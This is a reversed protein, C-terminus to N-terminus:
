TPRSSGRTTVGTTRSSGATSRCGFWVFQTSRPPHRSPSRGPAAPNRAWIVKEGPRASNDHEEWGRIDRISAHAKIRDVEFAPCVIAPDGAAPVILAILRESTGPNDGIFYRYNASPVVILMDWKRTTLEAQARALRQAFVAPSLSPEQM